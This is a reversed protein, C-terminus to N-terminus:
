IGGSILISGKFFSGNYKTKVSGSSPDIFKLLKNKMAWSTRIIESIEHTDDYKVIIYKPYVAASNEASNEKSQEGEANPFQPRTRGFFDTQSQLTEGAPKKLLEKVEAKSDSLFISLIKFLGCSFNHWSNM